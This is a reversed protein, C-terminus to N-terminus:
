HETAYAASHEGAIRGSNVAFGMTNGPLIFAYSDGYISNADTGAAYLGPIRKWEKDIVETRANIKIGGLTGFAGPLFRGAYFKPRKIPRLLRYSKNFLNDHGKACCENYQDVTSILGERDIGTKTALEDLSDAVFIEKFGKDLHAKLLSDFHEAKMAPFVVSVADFGVNEMHEKIGKDFIVFATREKQASIANATFTTNPMIEENMFREGLLNVMLHPQRFAEGLSRDFSGPMMFILHMRMETPAAGADWGMKVGDGDIGPIRFSSLDKGWEYGTFQKIMEPNNGFGGTAIIVARAAVQLPAGSIDEAMVGTVRGDQKTIKRAPTRLLLQVGLEQAKRTLTRMMDAGSTPGVKGTRPKVIHWTFNGGPFYAAPEVFEVGLGELWDISTAAKDIYARVLRADARWHTYDMFIRFAEDRDPGHQKLKQLRSEIGFPGMAMNATGGTTARKELVVVKANLEAAAVAACLGAPGGGIVALDTEIRNM